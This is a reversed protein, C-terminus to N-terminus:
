KGNKSKERLIDVNKIALELGDVYKVLKLRRENERELNEKIRILSNRLQSIIDEFDELEYGDFTDLAYNKEFDYEYGNELEGTDVFEILAPLLEHVMEQTLHMRDHFLVEKPVEFPVWGCNEDYTNFGLKKADQALILPKVDNVGFWIKDEMASSSKQLSCEIGYSDKFEHYNFGRETKKM